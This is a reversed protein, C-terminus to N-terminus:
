CLWTLHNQFMWPLCHKLSPTCSGILTHSWKKSLELSTTISPGWTSTEKVSPHCHTSPFLPPTDLFFRHQSHIYTHMHLCCTTSATYYPSKYYKVINFHTFSSVVDLRDERGVNATCKLWCFFDFQPRHTHSLAPISVNCPLLHWRKHTIMGRISSCWCKFSVSPCYQM